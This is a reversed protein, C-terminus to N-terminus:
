LPTSAEEGLLAEEVVRLLSKRESLRWHIDGSRIKEEPRGLFITRYRAPKYREGGLQFNEGAKILAILRVPCPRKEKM